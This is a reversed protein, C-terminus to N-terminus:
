TSSPLYKIAINIMKDDKKIAAKFLDKVAKKEVDSEETNYVEVENPWEVPDVLWSPGNIWLETFSGGKCRRSGLNAPKEQSPVHRM